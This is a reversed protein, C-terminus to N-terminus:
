PGPNGDSSSRSLAEALQRDAPSLRDLPIEIDRGTDARLRVKGNELGLFEARLEFVGSSDHWTRMQRAAAQAAPTTDAGSSPAASKWKALLERATQQVRTNAHTQLNEVAARIEADIWQPEKERLGNLTMQVRAPNSSKLAEIMRDKQEPSIPAAARKQKMEELRQRAEALQRERDQREKQLEEDSLRHYKITMPVTVTVNGTTATLTQRFDLSESAALERNFVWTGEGSIEFREGDTTPSTLRYARKTTVLKGEVSAISLSIKESGAQRTEPEDGFPGGPFRPAFFPPGRRVAQQSITLGNEVSWSSKAEEPLPEFVLMSLNGLLYPLQSDGELREVVGQPTVTLTNTSSSLGSFPNADFPGRPVSPPGFGPGFRPGFRRPESSTSRGPKSQRSRTMRGRALVKLQGDSSGQGTFLVMGKITDTHDDLDATIEVAYGFEQGDKWAYRLPMKASEGSDAAFAAQFATVLGAVLAAANVRALVRARLM